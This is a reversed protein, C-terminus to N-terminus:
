YDWFSFRGKEYVDKEHFQLSKGKGLETQVEEQKMLWTLADDITAEETVGLEGQTIEWEYRDGGIRYRIRIPVENFKRKQEEIERKQEELKRKREKEELLPKLSREVNQLRREMRATMDGEFWIRGTRASTHGNRGFKALWWKLYERDEELEQFDKEWYPKERRTIEACIAACRKNEPRDKLLFWEDWLAGLTLNEPSTVRKLEDEKEKAEQVKRHWERAIDNQACQIAEDEERFKAQEKKWIANRVSRLDEDPEPPLQPDIRIAKGEQYKWKIQTRWRKIEEPISKRLVRVQSQFQTPPPSELRRQTLQVWRETLRLHKEDLAQRKKRLREEREQVEVARRIRTETEQRQRKEEAQRRQEEAQRKAEEQREQELREERIQYVRWRVTLDAPGTTELDWGCRALAKREERQEEASLHAQRKEEEAVWDRWQQKLEEPTRRATEDKRQQTAIVEPAQKKVAQAERERTDAIRKQEVAEQQRLEYDTQDKAWEDMKADAIKREGQESLRFLEPKLEM